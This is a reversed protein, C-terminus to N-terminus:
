WGGRKRVAILSSNEADKLGMSVNNWELYRMLSWTPRSISVYLRLQAQGLQTETTAFGDYKDGRMAKLQGVMYRGDQRCTM